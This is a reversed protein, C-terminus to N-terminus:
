LDFLLYYVDNMSLAVSSKLNLIKYETKVFILFMYACFFGSAYSLDNDM